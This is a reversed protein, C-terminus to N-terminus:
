VFLSTLLQTDEKSNPDQRVTLVLLLVVSRKYQLATSYEVVLRCEKANMRRSSMGPTSSRGLALLERNWVLM